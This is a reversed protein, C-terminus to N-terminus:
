AAANSFQKLMKHFTGNPHYEDKLWDNRFKQVRTWFISMIKEESELTGTILGCDRIRYGEKGEVNKTKFCGFLLTQITNQEQKQLVESFLETRYIYTALLNPVTCDGDGKFKKALNATNLIHGLESVMMNTNLFKYNNGVKKILEIDMQYTDWDEEGIIIVKINNM